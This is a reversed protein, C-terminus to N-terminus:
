IGPMADSGFLFVALLSAPAVWFRSDLTLKRERGANMGTGGTLKRALM